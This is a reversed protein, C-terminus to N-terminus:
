TGLNGQLLRDACCSSHAHREHRDLNALHGGRDSRPRTGGVPDVPHDCEPCTPIVADTPVVFGHIICFYRKQAM